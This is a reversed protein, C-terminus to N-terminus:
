WGLLEKRRNYFKKTKCEELFSDFKGDGIMDLPFLDHNNCQMRHLEEESVNNIDEVSIIGAKDWCKGSDMNILCVKNDELYSLIYMEDFGRMVFKTGITAM